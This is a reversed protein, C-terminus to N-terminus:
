RLVWMKILSLLTDVTGIRVVNEAATVDVEGIKKGDSVIEIRGIKQGKKVPAKIGEDFIINKEIKNNSQKSSLIKYDSKAKTVVSDDMGKKVAVVGCDEGAEVLPLIKYNSFGYNLLEKATGFRDDTTEAGIVVGILTLGNRQAAASLCYKAQSTSGTKIGIAGDYFRILKNTNTLGFQGNRVTDMWITLYPRIGEHKLLERSMIAVDRASSYHGETDLGNCNVFNTNAMGLARARENMADVFTQESGMIYEAMAVSSDNASGVAISKLLEGVSMQEGPELYIQSGGMKCAYESATVVDDVSIKGSNIAEMCILMTMIKTVSAIPYPEDANHEAMVTGTDYDMLIYGRPVATPQFDAFAVTAVSLVLIFVFIRMCLKM